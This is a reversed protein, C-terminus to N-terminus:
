AKTLWIAAADDPWGGSAPFPRVGPWADMCLPDQRGLRDMAKETEAWTQQLTSPAFGDSALIIQSANSLVCYTGIQREPVSQGDIVGYGFDPAPSNTFNPQWERTLTDMFAQTPDDEQLHQTKVGMDLCEQLIKARLASKKQDVALEGDYITRDVKYPGDGVRIILGPRPLFAVFTCAPRGIPQSRFGELENQLAQSIEMVFQNATTFNQAAELMTLATHEAAFRGPTYGDLRPVDTGPNIGASVGDIVAYINTDIVLVDEPGRAPNKPRIITETVNWTPM